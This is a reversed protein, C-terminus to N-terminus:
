RATYLIRAVPELLIPRPGAPSDVTPRAAQALGGWRAQHPATARAPSSSRRPPEAVPVAAVPEGTRGGPSRRRGPGPRAGPRGQPRGEEEARGEQRGAERGEQGRGEEAGGEEAGGEEAGGEEAGGEEVAKKVAKKPAAKKM